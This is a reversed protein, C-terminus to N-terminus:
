YEILGKRTRTSYTGKLSKTESFLDKLEPPSNIRSKPDLYFNITWNEPFGHKVRIGDMIVPITAKQGGIIVVFAVIRKQAALQLGDFLEKLSPGSDIEIKRLSM